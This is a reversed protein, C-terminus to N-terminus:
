DLIITSEIIILSNNTCYCALDSIARYVYSMDPKNKVTVPTPVCVIFADANEPAKSFRISEKKTSTTLLDQIKPEEIHINGEELSKIVDQSIDVGVVNHGSNALVLAVPLGVYGLGIVCIKM